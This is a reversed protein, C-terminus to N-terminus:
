SEINRAAFKTSKEPTPRGPLSSRQVVKWGTVSGCTNRRPINMLLLMMSELTRSMSLNGANVPNFGTDRVLEMVQTVAESDDGAVFVDAVQDESDPMKVDTAFITNFAKVIRSHPLLEALEEAASKIPPTLLDSFRQNMPNVVSIVIKGTVFERIEQAVAAQAEYPVAPIIIDAEWSAEKPDIVIGMDAQPVQMRIKAELLPLRGVLALLDRYDHGSILTRYGARAIVCAMASGMKGEAGIIAVTKKMTIRATPNNSLEEFMEGVIYAAGPYRRM